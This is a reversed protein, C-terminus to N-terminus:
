WLDELVGQWCCWSSSPRSDLQVMAICTRMFSTLYLGRNIVIADMQNPMWEVCRVEGGTIEPEEWFDIGFKKSPWKGPNLLKSFSYFWFQSYGWTPTGDSSRSIAFSSPAIYLPQHFNRQLFTVPIQTIWPADLFISGRHCFNIIPKHEYPNVNLIIRAARNQLKQLHKTHVRIYIRSQIHKHNSPSYIFLCVFLGRTHAVCRLCQSSSKYETVAM